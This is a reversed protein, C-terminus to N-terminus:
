ELAKEVAATIAEAFSVRDGSELEMQARLKRVLKKTHDNVALSAKADGNSHVRKAKTATTVPPKRASTIRPRGAPKKAARKMRKEEQELDESEIM